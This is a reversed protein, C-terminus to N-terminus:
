NLSLLKVRQRFKSWITEIKLRVRKWDMESDSVVDDKTEDWLCRSGFMCFIFLQKYSLKFIRDDIFRTKILMVVPVRSSGSSYTWPTRTYKAAENQHAQKARMQFLICGILIPIRFHYFLFIFWRGTTSLASLKDPLDATSTTSHHHNLIDPLANRRGVRGTNYFESNNDLSISGGGGGSDVAAKSPDGTAPLSDASSSTAESAEGAKTTAEM